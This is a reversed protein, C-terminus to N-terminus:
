QKYVEVWEADDQAEAELKAMYKAFLRRRQQAVWEEKSLQTQPVHEGSIIDHALETHWVVARKPKTHDTTGKPKKLISKPTARSDNSGTSWTSSTTSTSDNGFPITPNFSISSMSQALPNVSDHSQDKDKDFIICLDNEFDLYYDDVESGETGKQFLPNKYYQPCALSFAVNMASTAFNGNSAFTAM